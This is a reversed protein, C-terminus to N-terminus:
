IKGAIKLLLFALWKIGFEIAIYSIVLLSAYIFIDKNLKLFALWKEM